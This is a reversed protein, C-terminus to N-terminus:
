EVFLYLLSMTNYAVNLKRITLPTSNLAIFMSAVSQMEQMKLGMKSESSTALVEPVAWSDGVDM